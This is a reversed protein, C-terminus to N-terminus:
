KCEKCYYHGKINYLALDSRGCKECTVRRSMMAMRKAEKEKHSKSNKKPEKNLIKAVASMYGM